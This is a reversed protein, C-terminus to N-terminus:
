HLTQRQSELMYQRLEQQHKLKSTESMSKNAVIFSEIIQGARLYIEDMNIKKIVTKSGSPTDIKKVKSSVDKFLKGIDKIDPSTLSTMIARAENEEIKKKFVANMIDQVFTFHTEFIRRLAIKNMTGYGSPIINNQASFITAAKDTNVITTLGDEILKSQSNGLMLKLGEWQAPTVGLAEHPQFSPNSVDVKSKNREIADRIWRMAGDKLVRPDNVGKRVSNILDKNAINVLKDIVFTDNGMHNAAEVLDKSIGKILRPAEEPTANKLTQEIKIQSDLERIQNEFKQAGPGFAEEIGERTLSAGEMAEEGTKKGASRFIADHLNGPNSKELENAIYKLAQTRKEVADRITRLNGYADHFQRMTGEPAGKAQLMKETFDDIMSLMGKRQDKGLMISTEGKKQILYRMENLFKLKNPIIAGGEEQSLEMVGKLDKAAQEIIAHGNAGWTDRWKDSFKTVAQEPLVSYQAEMYDYEKELTKSATEQMKELSSIRQNFLERRM